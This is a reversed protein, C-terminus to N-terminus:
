GLTVREGSFLFWLALGIVITLGIMGLWAARRDFAREAEFQRLLDHIQRWASRALKHRKFGEVVRESRNSDTVM